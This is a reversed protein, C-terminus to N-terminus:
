TSVVYLSEYGIWCPIGEAKLAARAALGPTRCLLVGGEGTSLTKSSQLSFSGFHGINGAGKGNWKAGTAHAADEVVVLDYKEAIVMIEDMNTMQAGLHVVVIAKTKSTITSEAKQPDICYTRPDVDVIIPIARSAIVAAATAQFTYAPILVEDGWVVNSARLAVEM